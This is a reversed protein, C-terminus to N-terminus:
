CAQLTPADREDLCAKGLARPPGKRTRPRAQRHARAPQPRKTKAICIWPMRPWFRAFFGGSAGPRQRGCACALLGAAEAGKVQRQGRVATTVLYELCHSKSVRLLDFYADWFRM